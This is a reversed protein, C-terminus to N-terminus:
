VEIIQGKLLTQNSVHRRDKHAPIDSFFTHADHWDHFIEYVVRPTNKGCGMGELMTGLADLVQETSDREELCFCWQGESEKTRYAYLIEYLQGELEVFNGPKFRLKPPKGASKVRVTNRHSGVAPTPAKRKHFGQRYRNIAEQTYRPPKYSM